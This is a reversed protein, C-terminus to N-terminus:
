GEMKKVLMDVQLKLEDIKCLKLKNELTDLREQQKAAMRKLDAFDDVLSM